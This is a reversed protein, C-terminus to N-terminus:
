LWVEKDKKSNINTLVVRKMAHKSIEKGPCEDAAALGVQGPNLTRTESYEDNCFVEKAKNVIIECEFPSCGTSKVIINELMTECTKIDIRAQMLEKQHAYNSIMFIGRQKIKIKACDIRDFKKKTLFRKKIRSPM